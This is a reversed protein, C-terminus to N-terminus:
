GANGVIEIQRADTVDVHTQYYYNNTPVGNQFFRITVRKAEGTVLIRSGRLADALPAGFKAQLQEVAEASIVIALNRQDRYDLESSLYTVNSQADTARVDVLFVGPVSQPAAANALEVARVSPIPPPDKPVSASACAAFLLIAPAAFLRIGTM